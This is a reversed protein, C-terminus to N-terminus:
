PQRRRAIDATIFRRYGILVLLGACLMLLSPSGFIAALGVTQKFYGTLLLGAGAAFCSTSNMCGIATARLEPDLVDCLVPHENSVAFQGFLAYAFIAVNVAALTPQMLFVLCFPAACFLSLLQVLMRKRIDRRAAWDSIRGGLISGIVAASQITFSGSFGAEALSMHFTEKYFLPLWNFFIWSGVSALMAESIIILYTPVRTLRRISDLKFPTATVRAPSSLPGKDALVFHCLLAMAMGAGGLCFFMVRWGFTQGLYGGLTGGVIMGFSLGAVHIGMALARSAVGHYDAILAIAAPLYLCEALGLLVRAFLLQGSNSSLGSAATVVSWSLLSITVLRSRSRRDALLGAFPSGCAYSLLFFSGIAGLEVDSMGFDHRLLPFVSSVATRDGYNLAACFFLIAVVAWPNRAKAM